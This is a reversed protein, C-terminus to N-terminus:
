FGTKTGASPRSPVAFRNLMEVANLALVDGAPKEYPPRFKSYRYHASMYEGDGTNPGDTLYGYSVNTYGCPITLPLKSGARIRRGIGQFPEFLIGVIGVDGLRLAQIEVELHRAAADARGARRLELAWQSWPLVAEILKGRYAPTLERPFNLGVCALTNKQDGAAARRIFEEMEAIEAKLTEESPLPGLPIQVKEVAYDLGDRNSPQLTDLAQIYSEGLMRGYRESLAVDGRFM